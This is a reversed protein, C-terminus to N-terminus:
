KEGQSKLWEEIAQQSQRDGQAVAIRLAERSASVADEKRGLAGAAAAVNKWANLSNPQYRASLRFHSLAESMRGQNALATGLTNQADAFEPKLQVARELPEQAEKLKGMVLYATGLGNLAEPFDANAELAIQFEAISEGTKGQNLLWLGRQYHDDPSEISWLRSQLHAGAREHQAAEEDKGLARLSAAIGQQARAMTPEIELARTYYEVAQQYKGARRYEIALNADALAYDPKIALARKYEAIAEDTRGLRVLEVALNQHTLWSDPNGRLTAGYLEIPGAYLGAQQFTQYALVCALAGGLGIAIRRPLIWLAAAVLAVIAVIAMYQYHDAVLSYRMYGVDVLGLVPLLAVFYLTGAVVLAGVAIVGRFWWALAGAVLLALLPAWWILNGTDIKWQSYAFVLDIPVLAKSLYFWFVAGAGALRQAFDAERIAGGAYRHQFWVNVITLFIAVFFFAASDALDRRTLRGRQWWLIALLAVALTAASGKSLMAAIFALVAWWYNGRLYVLVAILSFLLALSGRQQFIWAVSEVNVPHVAFLVAALWGGPIALRRLIAWILLCNAVHIALSVLHYGTTWTGFIHWEAWFATTAVPCYDQQESTVWTTLGGGPSRILADEVIYYTDDGIFNGACSPWYAALVAIAILAGGVVTRDTFPKGFGAEDSGRQTMRHNPEPSSM